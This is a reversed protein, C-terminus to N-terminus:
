MVTPWGPEVSGSSHRARTALVSPCASFALFAESSTQKSNGTFVLCELVCPCSLFQRLPCFTDKYLTFEPLVKNHQSGRSHSLAWIAAHAPLWYFIEAELVPTSPAPLKHVIPPFIPQKKKIIDAHAGSVSLLLLVSIKKLSNLFLPFKKNVVQEGFLEHSSYHIGCSM